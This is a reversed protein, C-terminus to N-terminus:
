FHTVAEYLKPLEAELRVVRVKSVLILRGSGPPKGDDDTEYTTLYSVLEKSGDGDLDAIILSQEQYFLSPQCGMNSCLQKIESESANVLHMDTDNFTILVIREKLCFASYADKPHHTITITSTNRSLSKTTTNIGSSGIRSERSEIYDPPQKDSASDHWHDNPQLINGWEKDKSMRKVRKQQSYWIPSKECSTWHWFKVAFGTVTGLLSESSSPDPKKNSNINSMQSNFLLIAPRLAYMKPGGDSWISSNPSKGDNFVRASARCDEPCQGQNQITLKKGHVSYTTPKNNISQPEGNGMLDPPGYNQSFVHQKIPVGGKSHKSFDVPASKNTVSKYLVSLETLKVSEKGGDDVCRYSIFWDKDVDVTLKYITQCTDDVFARGILRGSKGSVIAIRNHSTKTSISPTKDSTSNTIRKLMRCAIALDFINDQDVDPLILPFEMDSPIFDTEKEANLFWITISTVPNFAYMLDNSGILLCDTKGDGDLDILSCDMDRPVSHLTKYWVVAGTSGMLAVLGGGSSPIPTPEEKKTAIHIPSSITEQEKDNHPFNIEGRVMFLLNNHQENNSPVVSIGGILELRHLTKEWSSGGQKDYQMIPCTSWNCPLVWLFAVIVFICLCLSMVFAVQRMMSMPHKNGVLMQLNGHRVEGEKKSSSGGLAGMVMTEEEIGAGMSGTGHSYNYNINSFGNIHVEHNEVSVGEHSLPQYDKMITNSTEETKVNAKKPTGLKRYFILNEHQSIEDESTEVDSTSQPLRSYVTGLGGSSVSM